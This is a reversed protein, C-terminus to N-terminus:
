YRTIQNGLYDYNVVSFEEQYNNHTVTSSINTASVQARIGNNQFRTVEVELITENQIMNQVGTIINSILRNDNDKDANVSSKTRRKNNELLKTRM